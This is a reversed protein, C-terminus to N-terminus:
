LEITARRNPGDLQLICRQLFMVGIVSQGAMFLTPIPISKKLRHEEIQIIKADPITDASITSGDAIEVDGTGLYTAYRTWETPLKLGFGTGVTFGTDILVYADKQTGHIDVILRLKCHGEYPLTCLRM